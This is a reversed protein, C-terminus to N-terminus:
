CEFCLHCCSLLGIVHMCCRSAGQTPLAPPLSAETGNVNKVTYISMMGALIHDNVQM